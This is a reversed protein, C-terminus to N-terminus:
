IFIDGNRDAINFFLRPQSNKRILECPCHLKTSFRVMYSIGRMDFESNSEDPERYHNLSEWEARSQFDVF